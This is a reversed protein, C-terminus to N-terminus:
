GHSTRSSILHKIMRWRQFPLGDFIVV